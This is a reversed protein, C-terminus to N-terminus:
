GCTWDGRLFEEAERPSSIWSCWSSWNTRWFYCVTRAKSRKWEQERQRSVEELRQTDWTDGRWLPGRSGGILIPWSCATSITQRNGKCSKDCDTIFKHIWKKIIIKKKERTEGVLIYPEFHLSRTKNRSLDEADTDTVQLANLEYKDLSHIRREHYIRKMSTVRSTFITKLIANRLTITYLLAVLLSSWLVKIIEPPVIETWPKSSKREQLHTRLYM